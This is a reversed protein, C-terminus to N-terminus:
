TDTEKIIAALMYLKLSRTSFKHIHETEIYFASM